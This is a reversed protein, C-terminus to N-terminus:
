IFLIWYTLWYTKQRNLSQRSFPWRVFVKLFPFLILSVSRCHLQLNTKKPPRTEGPILPVSQIPKQFDPAPLRHIGVTSLKSNSPWRIKNKSRWVRKVGTPLFLHKKVCWWFNLFDRKWPPLTRNFGLLRPNNISRQYQLLWYWTLTMFENM